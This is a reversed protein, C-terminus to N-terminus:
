PAPDDHPRIRYAKADDKEYLLTFHDRFGPQAELRAAMTSLAVVIEFGQASLKRALEAPPLHIFDSERWPGFLDGWIERPGYYISTKLGFQYVRCTTHQRLYNMVAYGPVHRPLLADRQKQTVVIRQTWQRAHNFAVGAGAVLLAILLWRGVRDLAGSRESHPMAQRLKAASGSCIAQWGVGATLALLPFVM